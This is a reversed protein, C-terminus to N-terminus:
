SFLLPLAILARPPSPPAGDIMCIEGMGLVRGLNAEMFAGLFEAMQMLFDEELGPRISGESNDAYPPPM